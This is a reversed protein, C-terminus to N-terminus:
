KFIPEGFANMEASGSEPTDAARSGFQHPVAPQAARGFVPRLSPDIERLYEEIMGLREDTAGLSRAAALVKEVVAPASLKKLEQGAEFAAGSAILLVADEDVHNPQAGLEDVAEPPLEVPVFAGNTFPDYVANAVANQNAQRDVTSISFTKGPLIVQDKPGNISHYKVVIKGPVTSQWKETAEM